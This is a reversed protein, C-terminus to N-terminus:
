SKGQVSQKKKKAPKDENPITNGEKVWREAATLPDLRCTLKHWSAFRKWDKPAVRMNVSFDGKM